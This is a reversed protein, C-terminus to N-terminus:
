LRLSQSSMPSSADAISEDSKSMISDNWFEFCNGLPWILTRGYSYRAILSKLESSLSLPASGM